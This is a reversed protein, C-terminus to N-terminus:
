TNWRAWAASGEEAENRFSAILSCLVGVPVCSQTSQLFGPPITKPNLGSYRIDILTERTAM